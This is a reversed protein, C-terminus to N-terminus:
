IRSIIHALCDIANDLRQRVSMVTAALAARRPDQTERNGAKEVERLQPGSPFLREELDDLARHLQLSLTEAEEADVRLGDPRVDVATAHLSQSGTRYILQDEM